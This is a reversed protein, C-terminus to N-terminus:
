FISKVWNWSAGIWAKLMNQRVSDTKEEPVRPMVFSVVTEGSLQMDGEERAIKEIQQNNNANAMKVKLDDNSNQLSAAQNKLDAVQANFERKTRYMHIDAVVLGVCLIVTALGVVHM